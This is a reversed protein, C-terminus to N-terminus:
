SSPFLVSQQLPALLPSEGRRSWSVPQVLEVGGALVAGSEQAVRVQDADQLSVVLETLCSRPARASGPSTM